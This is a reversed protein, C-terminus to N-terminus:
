ASAYKAMRIAAIPISWKSVTTHLRPPSLRSRSSKALRSRVIPPRTLFATLTKTTPAAVSMIRSSIPTLMVGSSVAAPM